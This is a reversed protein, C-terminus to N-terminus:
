KKQTILKAASIGLSASLKELTALNCCSKGGELASVTSQTVGLLIAFAEQSAELSERLNRLNAGLISALDTVAVKKNKKTKM